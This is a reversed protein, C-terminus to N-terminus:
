LTVRRRVIQCNPGDGYNEGSEEISTEKKIVIELDRDLANL